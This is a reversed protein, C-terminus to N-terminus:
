RATRMAAAFAAEFRKPFEREVTKRAVFEFDYIPSYVAGSVFILVPKLAWGFGFRVRQWVGLPLKGGGPRGVFYAFGRVGRRAQGRALAARREDSMNARYGQEPFARFYALIQVLQGRNMNGFADLRAGEGPVALMDPPLVGARRLAVEFRKPRRLGGAIQAWLFKAAPTGKAAFDKLGVEAELRARTARKVYVGSLTYPTPRDFVDRMERVEAEQVVQVTANLAQAAAFPIQRRAVDDLAAVVRDVDARVEIRIIM